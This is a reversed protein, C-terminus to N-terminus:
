IRITRRNESDTDVNENDTEVDETTEEEASSTDESEAEGGCAGLLLAAAFGGALLYKKM